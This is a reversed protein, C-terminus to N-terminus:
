LSGLILALCILFVTGTTFFPTLKRAMEPGARKVFLFICVIGAAILLGVPCFYFLSFDGTFYAGISLGYAIIFAVIAMKVTGTLGFRKPLTQKRTMLDKPFNRIDIIGRAGAIAFFLVGALLIAPLGIIGAASGMLLHLAHLLGLVVTYVLPKAMFPLVTSIVLFLIIAWPILVRPAALFIIVFSAALFILAFVFMLLPAVAAEKKNDKGRHLFGSLSFGGVATCWGALTLWLSLRIGAGAAFAASGTIIAAMITREFRFLKFFASIGSSKEKKETM